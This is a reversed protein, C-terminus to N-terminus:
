LWMQNDESTWTTRSTKDNACTPLDWEVNEMGMTWTTFWKRVLKSCHSLGKRLTKCHCRLHTWTVWTQYCVERWAKQLLRCSAEWGNDEREKHSWNHFAYTTGRCRNYWMQKHVPGFFHNDIESVSQKESIKRFCSAKGSLPCTIKHWMRLLCSDSLHWSM